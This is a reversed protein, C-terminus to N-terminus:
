YNEKSTKIKRFNTNEPYCNEINGILINNEGVEFSSAVFNFHLYGKSRIQCLIVLM